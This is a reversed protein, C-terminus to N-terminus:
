MCCNLLHGVGAAALCLSIVTGLGVAGAVLVRAAKLREQGAEGFMRIQRAYRKREEDTIM